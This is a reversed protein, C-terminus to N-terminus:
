GPARSAVKRAGRRQALWAVAAGLATIVLLRHGNVGAPESAAEGEAAIDAALRSLIGRAMEVNVYFPYHIADMTLVRHPGLPSPELEAHIGYPWVDLVPVGAAAWRPTLAANAAAAGARTFAGRTVGERYELPLLTRWYLRALPMRASHDSAQASLADILAEVEALLGALVADPSGLHVDHRLNWLGANLVVAAKGAPRGEGGGRLLAGLLGRGEVTRVQEVRLFHLELGGPLSLLTENVNRVTRLQAVAACVASAEPALAGRAAVAAGPEATANCGALWLATDYVWERTTSDGVFLLARGALARLVRPPTDLAPRCGAVPVWLFPAAAGEWAGGALLCAPQSRPLAGRLAAARPTLLLAPLLLLTLRRMPGLCPVLPALPSM